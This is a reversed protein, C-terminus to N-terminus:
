TLCKFEGAKWRKRCQELLPPITLLVENTRANIFMEVTYGTAAISGDDKLLRYEINLRAGDNWCLAAEITIMEDLVLPKHYDIHLQVIPAHLEAKFFDSYSLGCKRGLKAFAEEFYVTYKGHWAIAMPDVDCFSIRRRVRVVIPQPYGKEREFYTEKKRRM